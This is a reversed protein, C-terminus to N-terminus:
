TCKPEIRDFLGDNNLDIQILNCFKSTVEGRRAERISGFDLDECAPESFTRSMWQFAAQLKQIHQYANFLAFVAQIYPLGKGILEEIKEPLLNKVIYESILGIIVKIMISFISGEWYMCTAESLQRDCSEVSIGNACAQEICCNNTQYITKLKRLNFLIGVPCMCGIAVYINDYPSLHYSNKLNGTTTQFNKIGKITDQSADLFKAAETLGKAPSLLGPESNCFACEALSCMPDFIYSIKQRVSNASEAWACLAKGAPTVKDTCTFDSLFGIALLPQRIVIDTSSWATCTFYLTSAVGELTKIPGNDMFDIFEQNDQYKKICSQLPDAVPVEVQGVVNEDAFVSAVYFPITVVLVILFVAINKKYIKSM